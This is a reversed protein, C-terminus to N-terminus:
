LIDKNYGQMLKLSYAVINRGTYIVVPAYGLLEDTLKIKDKEDDAQEIALCNREKVM